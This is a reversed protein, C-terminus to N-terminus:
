EAAPTTERSSKAAFGNSAAPTTERPTSASPTSSRTTLDIASENFSRGVLGTANSSEYASRTLIDEHSSNLLSSYKDSAKSRIPNADASSRSRSIDFATDYVRRSSRSPMLSSIPPLPEGGRRQVTVSCETTDEGYDNSAKCMYAGADDIRTNFIELSCVGSKYNLQVREQNVPVGDKFWEIKPIPNGQVTCILKCPHNKQILRMRLPFSFLPPSRNEKFEPVEPLKPARRAPQMPELKFESIVKQVNLYVTEEKSGFANQARVTYEGRDDMKVRNITLAYDNDNYKKMYKVSQKLEQSDKYWTVIPSPAAIVRCFFTVSQGEPCSTSFPKIIFRPQADSRDFFADHMHYEEIRHKKLSSFNAVRGLPPNPEPWADYKSRVADRVKQYRESPIEHGDGSVPQNLWSHDLAEHVTLRQHPEMLLLKKIFDKANESIGNFAPDDMNWDCDKVHKLTEEDTEGGFPSLGSLLIYSLVGVSWMDTFYGVPNGLAVEPAAFEATGTTVKVAEHPNIKAALGFDILKLQNSRRTTFMINEPKLDLHVYSMEHMHKLANCVQRIYDKAEEESMKNKEDAVKEFLEGGSMFEYIMVMEHDDEFADHLNILSPHRLESMTNIEKRVTEKEAASPTTVFKAAFTNGTAREVCRHVVGFAGTGIEELIDYYDYISEHKIEVPQPYYQKWVDIVYADYNDTTPGKGRVIKGSDDVDYQGRRRNRSAPIEVPLTPECAKGVGYKNEAAIRFEYKKSPKLGEVTLYTFRSRACQQWQGMGSESKEVIYGTITAGGDLIPPKWSLIVAEELVQEIIPFRPADPKDAITVNVVGSDTGVENHLVLRYEGADERQAHNIVLTASSGDSSMTYKSGSEIKEGNKMWTATAAPHGKYPIKLEVNTGNNAEFGYHFKPPIFVRPKSKLNLQARTSKSGKINTARCAYEDEDELHLTSIILVQKQGKNLITYKSTDVLEKLGRYWHIEPTPSGTVECEFTVNGNETGWQDSLPVTFEPIEGVRSPVFEYNEILAPESAGADNVAFIRFEYKRGEIMNAINLSTAPSPAQTCKQWFESGVERREVMYGRIRGGGDTQPRHWSIVAFETGVDVVGADTPASPPNFPLRAVIPEESVLPPGQGNANCASVRFEYEHNEFLGCVTFSLERVASAVVTWEDRAVDKKELIYNTIRSGGDDVPPRWSITAQVPSINSIVLPGEPARPLGSVNIWFGTSAEGSENAVTYEFRGSEHSHLESITILVHNEFDVMRITPHDTSIESGNLLLKHTFPASGSFYIKRRVLEGEPYVGSAVDREIVPPAQVKLVATAADSGFCNTLECTYDGADIDWVEKIVLKYVGDGIEIRYRGSDPVERGNKLWRCTPTPRGTAECTFVARKNYPVATDAPKVVIFPKSGAIDQIKIPGSPLSPLGRGHSNIAFVRFEYESFEKLRDVTFEPNIVNYDSCVEWVAHGIERKELVYGTIKSGGNDMPPSWTLTVHNRGISEAHLQIPPGPPGFKAKLQVKDSPPSAKSWGAANKALVRFEYEGFDKLNAVKFSTGPILEKNATLWKHSHSDRYQLNYGLIKSGGNSTPPEWEIEAWNRDMDRVTPKEPQSPVTFQWKATIPEKLELPESVGYQNEARVRFRYRENEQLGGVLFSTARVFSSVKEWNESGGRVHLKEVIYNTIPSGGDDRPEKWSLKCSEPSIDDTELPGEPPSPKDVVKLRVDVSDSGLDNEIRINYTAGDARESKKYVLQTLFDNTEIQARPIAEVAIGNKTWTIEPPPVAAYPVLIKATEGVLVILDRALIGMTIIPKSAQSAALIPGSNESYDGQGAVNVAAVRFEYQKHATLGTVRYKTDTVNGFTAKQWENTGVERREVVYGLIPAGGDYIPRSWQITIADDSTQIPIPQGPPGPPDYPNKAVVSDDANLPESIGYQNEARVRFDYATGNNLNRVRFNTGTPQGVKEWEGTKPNKKEVVYNTIEGGGNDKPPLWHLTIAEGTIESFTIPGTPKDPADLVTVKLKGTDKGFRNQVVVKYPGADTRKSNLTTFTIKGDEVVVTTRDDEYIQSTGNIVDVTPKPNGGSFPISFSITEGARVVIDKLGSLDLIPRGPSEQTFIIDSPKSPDSEGAKNLAIVRFEYEQKEELNDVILRTNRVPKGNNARIWDNDGVKRKEVIYGEIPSGGDSTPRIWTVEASNKTVNGVRPQEPASPPEIYPKCTVPDCGTSPPGQGAENVARVRFQYTENEHLGTVLAETGRVLGLNAVPAWDGGGRKEFREIVYGIIPAGGDDRPPNWKLAVLSSDYSAVEPIGPAGPVDFPDKATVPVSLLPESSGVINEAFVRFMYQKGNELNRINHHLQSTTGAKEWFSSGVEQYEIRYGSLEVGGDDKPPKWQIAISRRTTNPYAMPGEPPSPKDIVNIFVRAEAKGQSNIADIRCQATDSRRSKGLYFRTKEKDTSIESTLEKGEKTWKITPTPSGTYPVIIEIPDGARVRVEKGDIDLMFRPEEFMPKAWALDSPDSPQGRGAENVAVVRYEYAHEAQVRDDHYHTTKVPQTNVKVWRGTKQDKREIDYHDIPSGGDDHPPDWKIDIHDVDHDTVQPKGPKGPTGFPDKAVVTDDTVLPDSRGLANEASVRFEYEHGEHLKPVTISTGTVFNSVPVWTQNKIDRREVVYNTIESGGNDEPPNWSLTCSEKTVNDVALPGKPPSPRDQVIVEFVGQDEGVENKLNLIYNGSDSRKASPFFISTTEPKGVDIILESPLSGVNELTWNVTPDPAGVYEVEMTMSFGAKIKFRRTQTLIKPKLFRAKAMQSASPESPESPGAENVATVRFEYETGKRLGTVSMSTGPTSGANMWVPSGKERKEVIYHQIPSGGNNAPPKWAIDIRDEDWDVIEPADPADPVEFANRAVTGDETELPKSEGMFNVAKVRFLYEKGPTLKTVRAHCDPFQGVEQWTGRSTDLKEVIYHLIESGGNDLPPKWDLECGEKHVGSVQIPGQPIDPVDLVVVTCTGSDSGYENSVTIQYTGTDKRVSSIINIESSYDKPILEAHDTGTFAQNNIKWQVTPPPEGEFEVNLNIPQGARVRIDSLTGINIKPALRRARAVKPDTPDSPDGPGAKNVARVRFQYTDGPTLGTVTGKTKNGPVTEAAVWEGYKDLKEIIYSDIPAGGDNAPPKWSVEMKDKDWDTIEVDQPKGPHDWPNKAIIGHDSQLPKSEGQKNVAKVRFKYEHGERLHGVRLTTDPSEGCPMWKGGDEQKEVVYHIIPSGGDDSPAYWKLVASEKTIDRADLPGGPVSPVDLVVVEVEEEDKGYDNTATIKYNGSDGREAGTTKLKTNNETTNDIKTRDSTMLPTGNLFWQIKPNPEGEVNVNFDIFSGAKVKIANFMNRDIKPPVRRAKALLSRSPDSPASEGAKNVAKIRFQYTKGPTLGEVTGETKNAPVQGAYEWEGGVVKKEIIYSEVPAGGDEKPPEWKLDARDKDWDTIEPTGPRDACDYPDKAIIPQASELPDSEGYKNVAKVRFKYEHNPTLDTVEFKTDNSEGAKVWRGTATDEKEVVYHTIPAGGDDEPIKWELTCGEKNIDSIKMPGRPDSPRDLVTVIVDATDTGNENSAVVHFTGTDSRLARKVLIKTKYDENQIRVRDDAELPTGEFDWKIEPPPEGSVPIDLNFSQGAKVRIEHISKRDIKPPVNREKCLVSDSPDSPAGKGAKNKARIRFEYEHGEKLNEVTAAPNEGAPVVKVEAWNPAFKEKAEIIYEEIPAGGDDHPPTWKLDVHDKDWDVIDPKGCKGPPDWPEKAIIKGINELPDSAGEENVASVRFKYEHGPILGEVVATTQNGAVEMAPVWQGTASDLKEIKYAKLPEGGDDEPPKWDLTVHDAHIDTVNLPGGPPSPKDVVLVKVSVSDKGNVNQAVVNYHGSNERECARIQLKTHYNGNELKVRGGHHIEGGEPYYWKIEPEPEGEVDTEFAIMQGAKIKIDKLAKIKPALNRAKAIVPKSADSPDSAGGKNVAVVRFEYEEGTTLDPVTATTVDGPVTIAPEWRGYKSRKEIQYETIPAGGDSAPPNWKLDVHDVDWDTPEPTGPKDPREYPNKAQVSEDSDLPDSKGESNVAKVRFNYYQGKQLGEAVFSTEATRGVPVWTGDRPDQREIEYYEIPEGGDDEPPKWDLTVRDAFVDSIGLPGKPKSPRGKVKIQVTVSDTGSDNTATITYSGTQKRLAKSMNFKSLYDADDIDIGSLPGNNFTWTVRPAPEGDINVNFKLQGGVKIVSDELDERHIHPALHRPKTIVSASPDSPEGCGGKNKAMIRFQYTEGPRLNAVTAKTETAPVTMAETWRGSTEDRKEIIYEQIPAGGDSSPPKWELDVHDKDWDVVDPKDMKSPVDFPNRALTTTDTVLPDSEGEKNVARVRFQYEHGPQLGKVEAKTGDSRGCPVWRGTAVDLKEIEYYDIPLGGNDEPAKWDLTCHDEYVDSVNLPGLPASPKGLVIIEVHHTDTGSDNSATLTYKGAHARTAGRLMFDTKYDENTIKIKPDNVPKGNFTWEKRPPPEGIVPVNFDVNQGVKITVTKMSERDIRPKMHRPKAIMKRSPESPAGPGAKNVAKVRFQYEEGEKLGHVTGECDPGAKGCEKWERDHKSKKEIVYGEIPAGGDSKPPDWLLDARDADWDVIDPQGPADPENYPNKAVISNDTVLPDSAGEKNVAKVRFQYTQGKKLGKVAAHCDKVKACPVWRGTETDLKEVEYFEIPEGGDDEPPKWDLDCSDEFINSVELPGRPKTPKDLVTLKAEEKDEGTPNKVTLSYKGRDARVASPICLITHENKKIEIQLAGTMELQKQNKFWKVEPAPEGGYKVNWRVTQGARVKIDKLSEHDLWAPVFKPKCVTKDCPESPAGPGAKNKAKVRFQYEQGEKLNRLTANPTKSTAVQVWEKTHPDRQEILYEEIPAGGDKMPPDWELSIYDADVDTVIPRGPKGPEDYPDKITVYQDNALPDSEGEKNVAKIRFKYNGKNRLGKVKLQTTNGDVKGVTVFKGKEDIDQAEVIYETIPEGGDDEPPKWDLTCGNAHIDNIGIPGKPPMPRGVVTVRATSECTGSANKLVITYQGSDGREANEVKLITKKRETTMKVRPGKLPKGGVSWSATPLPEGAIPVEYKITEGVRLRLDKIGGQTFKPPEPKAKIKFARGHDCPDGPGAKNVARVRYYYEKEEVVKDDLLSHTEDGTSPVEGVQRWEKESKERREVIYKEIPAGGDDEPPNWQLTLSDKSIDAPEMNRPKGPVTYPNKALITEGTLPDSVGVDNFAKIRFKYEGHEKLDKVWFDTGKTEGIKVWKGSRGEQMEVIYGRTPCAEDPDAQKWQLQCNEATVNKTELPGKPPKPKDHVYLEFPALATGGSNQLELAWKGTDNMTPNKFIIQVDDDNVVVEILDKMKELDIPKGNRLIVPKPPGRKTGKVNYPIKIVKEKGADCEIKKSKWDLVPKKEAELVKVFCSGRLGGVDIEYTDAENMEIKSIKMWHVGARSQTEFKGGPMSSIPKGNRSWSGPTKTDKTECRLEVDDREFAEEDKLKVIFKNLPEVILQAMTKDDKTTCKYEGHDEIKANKVILRRKRGSAETDFRIGDIVIKIGDHWWEVEADRDNVDCELATEEKENVRQSKLPVVFTERPEEVYVTCKSFVEDNIKAMWEGHDSEEVVRITITFRGTPDKDVNFRPNSMDIPKGRHHWVLPARASNVKCTLVGQKTRYIEQTNPLPNLFSYKMPPEDITLQCATKVGNAECVYKGSDDVEPNNILLTCKAKEIIIKYKLGGSFVEKNDRFWRIKANPRSYVCELNAVKHVLQQFRAEEPLPEVWQEVKKGPFMSGRRDDAQPQEPATKSTSDRKKLMSRFDLGQEATVLLKVDVSDSGHENQVQLTYAGDDQTRCKAIVLSIQNSEGDTLYKVRGSQPYERIGKKWTFTPAPDGEVMCRLIAIENEIVTVNEPIEVIRAPTGTGGVPKLPTTPKELIEAVSERRMDVSSRRTSNRREASANGLEEKQVQELRTSGRRSFTELTGRRSRQEPTENGSQDNQKSDKVVRKLQVDFPTKKQGVQQGKLKDVGSKKLGVSSPPKKEEPQNTPTKKLVAGFPNSAGTPPKVDSTEAAPPKKKVLVKKRLPKSEDGNANAEKHEQPPEAVDKKGVQRPQPRFSKQFSPLESISETIEDEDESGVHGGSLQILERRRDEPIKLGSDPTEEEEEEQQEISNKPIQDGTARQKEPVVKEDTTISRRKNSTEELKGSDQQSLMPERTEEEKEEINEFKVVASSQSNGYDSNAECKYLGAKDQSMRNISLQATRGDFSFSYESSSTIVQSDKFWTIKTNSHCQLVCELIVKEGKTATKSKLPGVVVPARKNETSQPAPSRSRSKERKPAPPLGADSKRKTGAASDVEMKEVTKQTTAEPQLTTNGSQSQLEQTPTSTRSRITKKPSSERSKKKSPTGERHKKSPTSPRSSSPTKARPSKRGVSPSRRGEPAEEQQFNLSLNANTEGQDNKINCRYQGADSSSPKRIELQCLYMNEGLDTFLEKFNGGGLSIGDKSWKATPKSASKVKCEMLILAGGEKPIIRPKGVFTPGRQSPTPAREDSGAFNLNINANSEGLQNSATCKYAGGDGANPEKIILIAKFINGSIKDLTLTVRNSASIPTGSHSWRVEPPPDAELHCEM